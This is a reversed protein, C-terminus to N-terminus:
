KYKRNFNRISHKITGEWLKTRQKKSDQGLLHVHSEGMIGRNSIRLHLPALMPSPGFWRYLEHMIGTSTHFKPHLGPDKSIDAYLDYNTVSKKM